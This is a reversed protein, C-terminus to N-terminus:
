PHNAVTLVCCVIEHSTRLPSVLFRQPSIIRIHLITAPLKVCGGATVGLFFYFFTAAGHFCFIKRKISHTYLSNLQSLAILYNPPGNLEAAGTIGGYITRGSKVPPIRGLYTFFM